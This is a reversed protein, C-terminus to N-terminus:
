GHLAGGAQRMGGNTVTERKPSFVYDTPSPCKLLWSLLVVQSKEGLVITKPGQNKRWKNKHQSVTYVWVDGSKVIDCPRMITIEDPRAANISLLRLIAAIPDTVAEVVKEFQEATIPQREVTAAIGVHDQTVNEVTEIKM